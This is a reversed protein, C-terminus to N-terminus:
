PQIPKLIDALWSYNHNHELTSKMPYAGSEAMVENGTEVCVSPSM